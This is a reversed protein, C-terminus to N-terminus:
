MSSLFLFSLLFSPFRVALESRFNEFYECNGVKEENIHLVTGGKVCNCPEVEPLGHKFFYVSNALAVAGNGKHSGILLKVKEGKRLLIGLGCSASLTNRGTNYLFSFLIILFHLNLVYAM